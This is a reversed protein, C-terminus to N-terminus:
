LKTQYPDFLSIVEDRACLVAWDMSQLEARKQNIYKARIMARTQPPNYVFSDIADQSVPSSFNPWWQLAGGAPLVRDWALTDAMAKRNDSYLDKAPYKRLLARHKAAVDLQTRLGGWEGKAPNSARLDDCIDLWLGAAEVEDSPLEVVDALQLAITALAEQIDIATMRKGDLTKVTERLSLDRSICRAAIAPEILALDRLRVNDIKEMKRIKEEHEIMRLVLSTAAFSLFRVTPSLGPDAFRVELRAWEPSGITDCDINPPPIIAMPKMGQDTRRELTRVLPIGGIGDAKQSLVFTNRLTGSMAWIRTALYAPILTDMLPKGSTARALLYNEHYGSTNGKIPDEQDENPDRMYTGGVRYMGHHPQRSATVIRQMVVVGALDAAAAQRPGLCEPSDYELHGVDVYMKGGNGLFREFKRIRAKRAAQQSIYVPHSIFIDGIKNQINYECESGITRPPPTDSLFAAPQITEASM